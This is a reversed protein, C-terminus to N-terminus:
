EIHIERNGLSIYTQNNKILQPELINKQDHQSNLVGGSDDYLLMNSSYGNRTNMGIKSVNRKHDFNDALKSNLVM